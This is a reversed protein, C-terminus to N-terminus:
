TAGRLVLYLCETFYIRRIWTEPIFHGHLPATGLCFYVRLSQLCWSVSAAPFASPLHSACMSKLYVVFLRNVDKLFNLHEFFYVVVFHGPTVLKQKASHKFPM